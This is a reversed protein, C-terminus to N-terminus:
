REDTHTSDSLTCEKKANQCPDPDPQSYYVTEPEPETPWERCGGSAILVCTGIVMLFTAVENLARRYANSRVPWLHGYVQRIPESHTM